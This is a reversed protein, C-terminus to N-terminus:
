WKVRFWLISIETEWTEALFKRSHWIMFLARETGGEGWSFPLVAIGQTAKGLHLAAIGFALKGIHCYCSLVIKFM